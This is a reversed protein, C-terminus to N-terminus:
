DQASKSSVRYQDGLHIPLHIYPHYKAHNKSNETMNGLIKLTGTAYENKRWRAFAHLEGVFVGNFM